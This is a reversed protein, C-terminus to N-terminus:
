IYLINIYIYISYGNIYIYVSYYYTLVIHYYVIGVGAVFPAFTRVIPVFRALVITKGGYKEYFKETKVLNKKKLFWSDM